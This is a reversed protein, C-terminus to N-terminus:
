WCTHIGSTGPPRLRLGDSAARPWLAPKKLLEFRLPRSMLTEFTQCAQNPIISSNQWSSDCSKRVKLSLAAARFASVRSKGIECDM